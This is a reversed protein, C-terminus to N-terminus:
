YDMNVKRMTMKEIYKYRDGDETYTEERELVMKSPTLTIVDSVLIDMSGDDYKIYLKLQGNKYSYTGDYGITIGGLDNYWWWYVDGDENLLWGEGLDTESEEFELKGNVYEQTIYSSCEWYGYISSSPSKDDDDDKWCSTIFTLTLLCFFLALHYNTKKKM